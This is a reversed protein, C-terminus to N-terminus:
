EASKRSWLRELRLVDPDLGYVFATLGAAFLRLAIEKADIPLSSGPGFCHCKVDIDRWLISSLSVAFASWLVVAALLAQRTFVGLLLLAGVLLEMGPVIAAVFADRGPPALRMLPFIDRWWEWHGGLWPAWEPPAFWEASAFKRWGTILFLAGTGWRVGVRVADAGFEVIAKM